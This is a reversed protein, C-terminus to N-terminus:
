KEMEEDTGGNALSEEKAKNIALGQEYLKRIQVVYKRGAQGATRTEDVMDLVLPIVNDPDKGVFYALDGASAISMSAMYDILAKPFHKECVAKFDLEM